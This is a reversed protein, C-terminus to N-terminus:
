KRIGFGLGPNQDSGGNVSDDQLEIHISNNDNLGNEKDGDDCNYKEETRQKHMSRFITHFKNNQSDVDYQQEECHANLAQSNIDKLLRNHTVINKLKIDVPVAAAPKM